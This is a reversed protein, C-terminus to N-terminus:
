KVYVFNFICDNLGDIRVIGLCSCFLISISSGSHKYVVSAFSCSFLLNFDSKTEIKLRYLYDKKCILLVFEYGLVTGIFFLEHSEPVQLKGFVVFWNM